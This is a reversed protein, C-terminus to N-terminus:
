MKCAEVREIEDGTEFKLKAIEIMSRPDGDERNMWELVAIHAETHTPWQDQLVSYEYQAAFELVDQELELEALSSVVPDYGSGNMIRVKVAKQYIRAVSMDGDNSIPIGPNKSFTIWDGEEIMALANGYFVGAERFNKLSACCNGCYEWRKVIMSKVGKGGELVGASKEIFFLAEAYDGAKLLGGGHNFMLAACARDNDTSKYKSLIDLAPGFDISSKIYLEIMGPVFSSFDLCKSELTSYMALSEKANSNLSDLSKIILRISSEPIYDLIKLMSNVKEM